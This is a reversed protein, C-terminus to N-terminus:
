AQLPILAGNVSGAADSLLFAITEAVHDLPVRAVDPMAKRSAPTDLTSPLLANATIRTGRVERATLEILTNLTSKSITYAAASADKTITAESSIAIIRGGLARDMQALAERIVIFASTANLDLMGSWSQMTTRSISDMAFGGALHIVGYLSGHRAGADRVAMAVSEEDVLNAAIGDLMETSGVAARLTAFGAEGHYLVVCRYDRVLRSVVATGLGGTGGTIILTKTM